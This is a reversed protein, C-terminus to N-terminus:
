WARTAEHWTPLVPVPLRVAFDALLCARYSGLLKRDCRGQTDSHRGHHAPLTPSPPHTTSLSSTSRDQPHRCSIIRTVLFSLHQLRSSPLLLHTIYHLTLLLTFPLVPSLSPSDSTSLSIYNSPDSCHLYLLCLSSFPFSPLAPPYKISLM